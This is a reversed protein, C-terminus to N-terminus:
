HFLPDRGFMLFFISEKSHENPLFNYATYALPIVQDWEHSKSVHKSMHTKLFHNFVEMRGNSQPHYPPSYVRHEVDLQTAVNSFLQNKFETGSDSLIKM